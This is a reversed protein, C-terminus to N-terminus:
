PRDVEAVFAAVFVDMIDRGHCHCCSAVNAVQVKMPPGLVWKGRLLLMQSGWAGAGLECDWM